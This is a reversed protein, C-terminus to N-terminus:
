EQAPKSLGTKKGAVGSKRKAVAEKHDVTATEKKTGVQEAAGKVVHVAAEGVASRLLADRALRRREKCEKCGMCSM